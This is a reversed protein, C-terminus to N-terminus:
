FINFRIYYEADPQVLCVVYRWLIQYLTPCPLVQAAAVLSPLHWSNICSLNSLMLLRSEDFNQIELAQCWLLVSDVEATSPHGPIPERDELELALLKRAYEIKVTM